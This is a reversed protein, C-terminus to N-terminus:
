AGGNGNPVWGRGFSDKGAHQPSERIDALRDIEEVEMGFGDCIADESLGAVQAARVIEGMKLVGHQGRARNHRVTSMMQAVADRPELVVVPVLGDTMAAVEPDTSALSWRHFGDIVEFVDGVRRAVIPQTWGDELISTKLLKRELPFVRNPNYDNARLLKPDLWQM